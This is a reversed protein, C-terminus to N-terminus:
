LAGINPAGNLPMQRFNESIFTISQGTSRAVSTTRLSLIGNTPDVFNPDAIASNSGTKGTLYGTSNDFYTATNAFMRNYDIDLVTSGRVDIGRDYGYIINNRMVITALSSEIGRLGAKGTAKAYAFFTNNYLETRTAYSPVQPIGFGHGDNARNIIINNWFRNIIPVSGSYTVNYLAFNDYNNDLFNGYNDFISSFQSGIGSKRNRLITNYRNIGSSYTTDANGHDSIGDGDSGLGDRPGYGNDAILNYERLIDHHALSGSGDATNAALHCGRIVGRNKGNGLYVGDSAAGWVAIDQLLQDDGNIQVAIDSSTSGVVTYSVEALTAPDVTSYVYLTGSSYGFQGAAPATQVTAYKWLKSVGSQSYDTIMLVTNPSTALAISWVNSGLDAWTGTIKTSNILVPRNGAGYAVVAIGNALLNLKQRLVSGRKIGIVLGPTTQEITGITARPALETGPNADSGSVTDIFVDIKATDNWPVGMRRALLWGEAFAPNSVTREVADVQALAGRALRQAKADKM